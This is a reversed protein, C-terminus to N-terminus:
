TTSTLMGSPRPVRLGASRELQQLVLENWGDVRREHSFAAGLAGAIFIAIAASKSRGAECHVLVGELNPAQNAGRLFQLVLEAMAATFVVGEGGNALAEGDLDDFALRLVRGFTPSLRTPSSDSDSISIVAWASDGPHREALVASVFDVHRIM